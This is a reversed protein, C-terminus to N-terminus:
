ASALRPLFCFFILVGFFSYFNLNELGNRIFKGRRSAAYVWITNSHFHQALTAPPARKSRVVFIQLAGLLHSPIINVPIERLWVSELALEKFERFNIKESLKRLAGKTTERKPNMITPALPIRVSVLQFTYDGYLWCPLCSFPLSFDNQDRSINASM